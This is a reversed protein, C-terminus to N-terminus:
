LGAAALLGDAMGAPFPPGWPLDAELVPVRLCLDALGEFQRRSAEPESWGVVRPAAGLAGLAAPPPLPRVALDTGAPRLRPLVCAALRVPGGTWAGAAVAYRGDVLWSGPGSAAGAALDEAGARLHLQTPGPWALAGGGDVDVRLVDDTLVAAGEAAALAALTSKGAGSAGVFAVAAGGRVVASAHLVLRGDLLLRVAGVVGAVLEGVAKEGARPDHHAHLRRLGADATIEAVGPFRLVIGEASRTFTYLSEGAPGVRHAIAEGPVRDAPVGRGEGVALVLDPAGDPGAEALPLPVASQVLYGHMQHYRRMAGGPHDAGATPRERSM